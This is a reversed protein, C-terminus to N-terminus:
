TQPAIGPRAAAVPPLNLRRRLYLLMIKHLLNGNGGPRFTKYYKRLYADMQLSWPAWLINKRHLLIKLVETCAVGAALLCSVPIVPGDNEKFRVGDDSLIYHRMILRPNHGVLLRIAQEARPLGKVRFYREFSMKQPHFNVVSVGMGPVIASTGPIRRSRCADFIQAQVDVSSLGMANLYFDAGELFDPINAADVGQNFIRADIHPNIDTLMAAITEAKNKGLTSLFAGAQRNLNSMEFCDYDALTFKEVGLRALTLAYYGGTGGMGGIAVRKSRLSALERASLWGITRTFAQSFDFQM